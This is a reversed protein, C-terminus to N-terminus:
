PPTVYRHNKGSLVSKIKANVNVGPGFVSPLVGRILPVDWKKLFAAEAAWVWHGDGLKPLVREYVRNHLHRLHGLSDFLQQDAVILLVPAHAEQGVKFESVLGSVFTHVDESHGSYAYAVKAMELSVDEIKKSPMIERLGVYSSVFKDPFLVNRRAVSIVSARFLDLQEKQRGHLQVMM